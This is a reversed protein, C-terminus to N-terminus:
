QRGETFERHFEIFNNLFDEQTIGLSLQQVQNFGITEDSGANENQTVEDNEPHNTVKM